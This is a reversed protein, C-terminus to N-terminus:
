YKHRQMELLRLRTYSDRETIYGSDFGAIASILIGMSSRLRQSPEHFYETGSTFFVDGRKVALVNDWDPLKELLKFTALAEQMELGAPAVIMVDPRFAVVEEWSIRTPELGRLNGQSIASTLAVMDPIWYGALMLPEVGVLFTVRKKKLRDYFNDAWNMAEAKIINALQIGKGPVGVDRALDQYTSYVQELGMPSYDCLEISDSKCVAQLTLKLQRTVLASDERRGTSTLVIDPELDRLKEVDVPFSALEASLSLAEADGVDSIEDPQDATIRQIVLNKDAIPRCRHTIGVLKDALGYHSVLDTIFPALSVIRMCNM